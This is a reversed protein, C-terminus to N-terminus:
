PEKKNESSDDVINKKANKRTKVVVFTIVVAVAAAALVGIIVFTLTSNEAGTTEPQAEAPTTTAATTQETVAASEKYATQTIAKGNVYLTHGNLNINANDSSENELSSIYSDGTLTITSSADLKLTINKASDDANVTGTYSSNDSLSMALTSISDAVVDGSLVQKSANLTVTGGNSGSNGWKGSQIRILAGESDTNTFKNNTLNIVATTNTVFFTDGNKTTIASDTANFTGTGESADGSMSQYIFINKYTESNGNLSTNNDTLTTKNLTVSNSGEIVVGEASTSNLTAHNVTIDATSYVAPSGKGNATYSGGNVTLTGGGRDSRIPASSNGDTEATVNNATLTGGGTVMVAGSNNGTTKITSDSINITGNEYSFVANAHAASTTLKAGSINLVAGNYALVAANTGYFDANEDSADGTKNVTINKLTSTGGSALLANESGTKSTYSVGSKSTSSTRTTAGSLTPSSSVGGGGGPPAGPGAAFASVFLPATCLVLSLLIATIKKMKKM